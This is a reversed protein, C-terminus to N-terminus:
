NTDCNIETELLGSLCIYIYIGNSLEIEPVWTHIDSNQRVKLVQKHMCREKNHLTILLYICQNAAMYVAVEM